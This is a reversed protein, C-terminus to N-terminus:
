KFREAKQGYSESRRSLFKFGDRSDEITNSSMGCRAGICDPQLKTTSGFEESLSTNQLEEKILQKLKTTTLKM